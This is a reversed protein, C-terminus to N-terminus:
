ASDMKLAVILVVAAKHRDGNILCDTIGIQM